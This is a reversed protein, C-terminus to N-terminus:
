VKRKSEVATDEPINAHNTEEPEETPDIEEFYNTDRVGLLEEFRLKYIDEPSVVGSQIYLCDSQSNSHNKEAIKRDTEAQEMENLSYLSNWQWTNDGDLGKWQVLMDIFKQIEPQIQQQGSQALDYFSTEDGDNSSNLGGSSGRGFLKSVPIKCVSSVNMMNRDIIDALGGLSISDRTFTEDTGLLVANLTSKSMEIATIRSQLKKEGGAALIEDLDSFTYVSVSAEQILVNVNAMAMHYDRIATWMGQLISIGWYRTELTNTASYGDPIQIGYFPICRSAHLYYENYENGAWIRVKYKLIKGFTPSNIDTDFISDPTMIDTLAIVKLFEITTIKKPDLETDPTGAGMAGVYVLAGGLLRAYNTAQKFHYSANLRNMEYTLLGEDYETTDDNQVVGYNKFMAEPIMTVINKVLDDQTYLDILTQNPLLPASAYVNTQTKQGRSKDLVSLASLWGDNRIQKTHALANASDKRITNIRDQSIISPELGILKKSLTSVGIIYYPIAGVIYYYM